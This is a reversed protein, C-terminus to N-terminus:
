TQVKQWIAYIGYNHASNFRGQVILNYDPDKELALTLAGLGPQGSNTGVLKLLRRSASRGPPSLVVDGPLSTASSFTTEYFLAIVGYNHSQLQNAYYSEPDKGAAPGPDLSLSTSWRQWDRGQPTYYEAIRDQGATYISGRARAAIPAFATVFSRSNPWAHYVQWASEWSSAAPYALAIVCYLPVFQQSAGPIWRILKSCAYGAAIAAFWIGYALHKDLSWGTQEHLQAAPVVFAACGLLALLAARQGRETGVAIFVGIVALSIILGSYGWIGKLVLLISQHDSVSRNIVTFVIGTWSRAATMLLGFFVASTGLLYTTRLIAQRAGMVPLWVLFAFAVVVPDIVIGSYATANALALAVAAVTVLAARGRRCSAQVILWASLATLLVSLPDFTAFALRIAPESLAWLASAAIAAGRGILRKVTLYLLVTAGLMFALSMLRAGALGGISDALAGLPPYIVPSGSFVQNTYAAPWSVGHLWHAWELHGIWLYDAEDGFATNSWVLTLSLAAQVACIATLPHLLLRRPRQFRRRPAHLLQGSAPPYQWQATPPTITSV